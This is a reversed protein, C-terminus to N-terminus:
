GGLVEDRNITYYTAIHKTKTTVVRHEFPAPPPPSCDPPCLLVFFLFSILSSDLYVTRSWQMTACRTGIMYEEPMLEGEKREEEPKEPEEESAGVGPKKEEESKEVEESREEVRSKKLDDKELNEVRRKTSAILEMHEDNSCLCVAGM